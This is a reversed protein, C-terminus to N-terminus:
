TDLENLLSKYIEYLGGKSIGLAQSIEVQSRWDGTENVAIYIAAALLSNPNKDEAIGKEDAKKIIEIAKEQTEESLGLEEAAKPMLNSLISMLDSKVMKRDDNMMNESRNNVRM